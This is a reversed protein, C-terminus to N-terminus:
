AKERDFDEDTLVTGAHAYFARTGFADRVLPYKEVGTCHCAGLLSIDRLALTGLIKKALATETDKLHFGGLLFKIPRSFRTEAEAAVNTIGRHNCGSVVILSDGRVKCLFQEESFRDEEKSTGKQVFLGEFHTDSDDLIPVDGVIHLSPAIEVTGHVEVFRHENGPPLVAGIAKGTKNFKPTFFGPGVYIKAGSNAACFHALGGSHDYHGHSLVLANVTGLDIGLTKANRLFVDSQGTDFLVSFGEDEVLFSLGHEAVLGNRYALNETLITIRM